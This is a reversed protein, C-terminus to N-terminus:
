PNFQNLIAPIVTSNKPLAVTSGGLSQRWFEAQGAIDTPFSPGVNYPDSMGGAELATNTRTACTDTPNPIKGFWWPPLNDTTGKLYALMQAEQEPTTNIVVVNTNRRPAERQLYNTLSSGLLTGNGYSYIGSGTVAIATHGFPNGGTPGNIVVATALGFPDVNSVPNGDVYGYTSAGGALGIPDSQVFRALASQSFGLLSLTLLQAFVFKSSRM